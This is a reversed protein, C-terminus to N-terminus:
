RRRMGPAGGQFVRVWTNRTSVPESSGSWISSVWGGTLKLVEIHEQLERREKPSAPMKGRQMWERRIARTSYGRRQSRCSAGKSKKQKGRRPQKSPAQEFWTVGRCSALQVDSTLASEPVVVRTKVDGTATHVTKTCVIETM